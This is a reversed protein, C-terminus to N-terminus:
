SIKQSIDLARASHTLAGMSIADVGSAAYAELNSELIGGSAELLVFDWLDEQKLTAVVSKIREPQMNDLMVLCPYDEGSQDQAHAFENAAALAASESRTEVEIFASEGRLKWARAIAPGVAEEERAALLALHNNKILIADGLNLRHTGGNGVHLARKDLLGWLTKRTGVVHVNPNGRAARQQALRAATAIGSMRQLVNLGIRELSLLEAECGKARLLVDGPRIADGDKKEFAVEVARERLLFGVEALGAVVGPERALIEASVTERTTGLGEVTLDLKGIDGRLLIDTLDRVARRYVDNELTLAAGRFLARKLREERTAVATPHIPATM